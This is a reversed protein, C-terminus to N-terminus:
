RGKLSLFSIKEKTIVVINKDTLAFCKLIDSNFPYENKLNGEKSYNFITRSSYAIINNKYSDMGVIQEEPRIEGLLKGNYAVTKITNEAYSYIIGRRSNGKNYISIFNKNGTDLGTISDNFDTEWNVTNDKNISVINSEDIVILDGRESFYINLIISDKFSESSILNGGLDYILIKNELDGEKTGITSIAVRKDQKSVATNTVSGEGLAIESLKKGEEDIITVYEVLGQSSNYLALYNDECVSFNKYGRNLTTKYVQEGKKNIRLIQNKGEDMIYVSSSNAKITPRNIALNSSWKQDGMMNYYILIGEWYKVLGNDLKEYIIQSSHPIDIDEVSAFTEQDLNSKSKLYQITKPSAALLVMTIAILIWLRKRKNAM